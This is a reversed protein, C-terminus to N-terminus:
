CTKHIYDAIVSSPAAVLSVTMKSHITLCKSYRGPFRGGKVTLDDTAFWQFGVRPLIIDKGDLNEQNSFGYTEFAENLTPKDNSSLCGYCYWQQEIDDTPYFTDEISLAIQSRTSDYATDAANTYANAYDSDYSGRFNGVERNEIM